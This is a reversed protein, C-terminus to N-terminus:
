SRTSVKEKDIEVIAGPGCLVIPAQLFKWTCEDRLSQHWDVIAHENLSLMKMSSTLRVGFCWHFIILILKELSLHSGATFSGDRISKAANCGRRPCRWRFGNECQRPTLAM